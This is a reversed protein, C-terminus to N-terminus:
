FSDPLSILLTKDTWILVVSFNWKIFWCNLQTWSLKSTYVWFWAWSVPHPMWNVTHKLVPSKIENYCKPSPPEVGKMFNWGSMRSCQIKSSQYGIDDEAFDGLKSVWDYSIVDYKHKPPRVSIEIFNSGSFWPIQFKSSHYGINPKVFSHSKWLGAVHFYTM